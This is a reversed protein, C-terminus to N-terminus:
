LWGLWAMVERAVAGVVGTRNSVVIDEVGAGEGAAVSAAADRLDDGRGRTVDSALRRQIEPWPVSLRVARLPV